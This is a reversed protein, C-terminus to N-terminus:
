AVLAKVVDALPMSKEVPAGDEIVEYTFQGKAIAEVTMIPGGNVSVVKDGAKIKENSM